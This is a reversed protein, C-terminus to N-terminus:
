IIETDLFRYEIAKQIDNLRIIENENLDAITRAIRLIKHCSRATLLNEEMYEELIRNGGKEMECYFPIKDPPIQSNLKFGEKAYRKEQIERVKIINKKVEESSKNKEGKVLERYNLRDVKVQLDIRDVLPNNLKRRYKKIEVKSCICTASKSGYHGCHCPNCAAILLFDAPYVACGNRLSIYVSKNEIITRLSQLSDSHFELFEDLFLVGKHALSVEGPLVKAGGGVVARSSFSNHPMRFPRKRDINEGFNTAAVSYIKNIELFEEDTLDPLITPLRSAGMTKGSGPPVVIIMHHFGAAAIEFASMLHKQGMIDSYDLKSVSSTTTNKILPIDFINSGNNIIDVMELINSVPIIKKNDLFSIENYNDHPIFIREFNKNLAELVMPFLGRIWKIEGSLNLEGFFAYKDTNKLLELANLVATAIALDYHSGTKVIEAPSLNITIRKLPFEIGSNQIAPRIREKSEKVEQSLLGSILIVPLGRKIDVETEVLNCNLGMRTFTFARGVM